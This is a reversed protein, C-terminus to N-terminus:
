KLDAKVKDLQSGVTSIQTGVTSVQDKVSKIDGQLVDMSNILHHHYVELKIQHVRDINKEKQETLLMDKIPLKEILMEKPKTLLTDRILLKEILMEKPKILLIDKILNQLFEKLKIQLLKDTKDISNLQM